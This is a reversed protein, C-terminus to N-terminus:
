KVFSKVQEIIPEYKQRDRFIACIVRSFNKFTFMDM